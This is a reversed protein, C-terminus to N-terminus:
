PFQGQTILNWDLPPVKWDIQRLGLCLGLCVRDRFSHENVLIVWADFNKPQINDLCDNIGLGNAM